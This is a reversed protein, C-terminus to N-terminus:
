RPSTYTTVPGRPTMIVKKGTSPPPLGLKGEPATLYRTCQEYSMKINVITTEASRDLYSFPGLPHDVETYNGEWNQYHDLLADTIQRYSGQLRVRVSPCPAGSKELEQDIQAIVDALKPTVPIDSPRTAKSLGM